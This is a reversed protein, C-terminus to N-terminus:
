RNTNANVFPNSIQKSSCSLDLAEKTLSIAKALAETAGSFPHTTGFTHGTQPIIEVKTQIARNKSLEEAESVPTAMDQEGVILSVPINITSMIRSLSYNEQNKEIDDLYQTDIRFARGLSSEPASIYGRQRWVEKQRDTYRDFTSLPSWLVLREVVAAGDAILLAIGAGRSHGLLYMEKTWMWQAEIPLFTDSLIKNLVTKADDLEQTVTNKSFRHIDLEENSLEFGNLSFNFNVVIAGSLALQECLYPYFGWDKHVRFGHLVIVVPKSTVTNLYRIDGNIEDGISNTLAFTTHILKM